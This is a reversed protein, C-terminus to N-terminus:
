KPMEVKIEDKLDVNKIEIEKYEGGDNLFASRLKVEDEWDFQQYQLQEFLCDSLFDEM